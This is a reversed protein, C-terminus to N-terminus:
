YHLTWAIGRGILWGSVGPIPLLVMFFFCLIDMGQGADPASSLMEPPAAVLFMASPLSMAVTAGITALRTSRWEGPQEILINRAASYLALFPWLAITLVLPEVLVSLLLWMPTPLRRLPGFFPSLDVVFNLIYAIVTLVSPGAAFIAFAILPLFLWRLGHRQLSALPHWPAEGNSSVRSSM